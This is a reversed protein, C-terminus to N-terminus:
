YEGVIHWMKQFFLANFGDPGPAKDPKMKFIVSKIEEYSISKVMDIAQSPLISKHVFSLDLM